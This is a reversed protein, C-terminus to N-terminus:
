GNPGTVYIDVSKWAYASNATSSNGILDMSLVIYPDNLTILNNSTVVKFAPMNGTLRDATIDAKATQPLAALATLCLIQLWRAVARKKNSCHVM